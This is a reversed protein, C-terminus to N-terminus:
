RSNSGLDEDDSGTNDYASYDLRLEETDTFRSYIDVNEDDESGPETPKPEPAAPKDEPKEEPKESESAPETEPQPAPEPAAETQEEPVEPSAEETTEETETEEETLDTEEDLETEDLEVEDELELDEDEPLPLEHWEGDEPIDALEPHKELEIARIKQYKKKRKRGYHGIKSRRAKRRAEEEEEQRRHADAIDQMRQKHAAEEAAIRAAEEEAKRRAEEEAAKRAEEEAALRAAEEAALRAAEEEEARRKAEEALRRAEEAQRRKEEERQQEKMKQAALAVRISRDIKREDGSLRGRRKGIQDLKVSRRYFSQQIDFDRSTYPRLKDLFKPKLPDATEEEALTETQGEDMKLVEERFQFYQLGIMDYMQQIYEEDPKEATERILMEYGIGEYSEIFEWLALCQRLYKNKNIANTHLIPPRVFNNGLAKTFPSHAYGAVASELKEVRHWLESSFNYKEGDDSDVDMDEVARVLEFNLSYTGKIKENGFSSTMKLTTRIEDNGNSKAQRFRRDVFVYLRNLLTNVFRNEYTLMTEDRTINLIKNPTVEDGEVKSIFNTHQALHRTSKQTIHRSQEIPKIEENEEIYVSPHRVVYELATLSDEIVTVWVEDIAKLSYRRTLGVETHGRQFMDLTPKFFSYTESIDNTFLRTDRCLDEQSEREPETEEADALDLDEYEEIPLLRDWPTGGETTNMADPDVTLDEINIVDSEAPAASKTDEEGEVQAEYLQEGAAGSPAVPTTTHTHVKEVAQNVLDDASHAGDVKSKDDLENAM